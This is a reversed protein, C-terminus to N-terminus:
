PGVIGTPVRAAVSAAIWDSRRILDAVPILRKGGPSAQCCAIVGAACWYRVTRTTVGLAEAVETVTVYNRERM